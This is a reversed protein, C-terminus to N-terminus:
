PYAPCNDGELPVCRQECDGDGCPRCCGLGAACRDLFRPCLDGEGLVVCSDEIECGLDDVWRMAPGCHCGPILAACGIEDTCSLHGCISQDWVGGTQQCLLDDPTCPSPQCGVGAYFSQDAGCDCGPIIARCAQPVGCQYHGCTETDWTGGSAECLAADDVPSTDGTSAAATEEDGDSTSAVDGTGVVNGTDAVDGTGIVDGSTQSGSVGSEGLSGQTAGAEDVTATEETTASSGGPGASTDGLSAGGSTSSASSANVSAASSGAETTENSTSAGDDACAAVLWVSLAGVREFWPRMHM